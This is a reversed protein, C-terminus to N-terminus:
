RLFLIENAGVSKFILLRRFVAFVTLIHSLALIRNLLKNSLNKTKRNKSTNTFLEIACSGPYSFLFFIVISLVFTDPVEM